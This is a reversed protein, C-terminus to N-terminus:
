RIHCATTGLTHCPVGSHGQCWSVHYRFVCLRPMEKTGSLNERIRAHRTKRMENRSVKKIM